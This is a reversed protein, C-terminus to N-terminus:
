ALPATLGLTAGTETQIATARRCAGPAIRM